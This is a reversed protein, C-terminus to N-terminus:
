FVKTGIMNRTLTKVMIELDLRLSWNRIYHLDLEVGRRAKEVTDIGGRMGNIQAWGTIGPKIQCRGAYTRVTESYAGAGVNMNPVHPRPGVISMDGRLVNFLQPLEDLSSQRLIAGVRTIRPDGRQKFHSGDDAPDVSMSRFKYIDFMRGNFGVRAQRFLIPGPGSMRVALAVLGMVPALFLLALAAVSYDQAAKVLGETGRLPHQSVRLAPMGAVNVRQSARGLRDANDLLAVVDACVWQVREVLDFILAPDRWPAAIVIMDIRQNRALGTFDDLSGVAGRAASTCAGPHHDFVGVLRYDTRGSEENLRELLSAALPTAGIVAIRKQLGGSSSFWRLMRAVGEREVVIAVLTVVTWALLWGDYRLVGPSFAWVLVRDAASAAFLGIFISPIQARHSRYAEVRYAGAARLMVVFGAGATLGLLIAQAFTLAGRPAWRQFLLAVLLIVAGDGLAVARNVM